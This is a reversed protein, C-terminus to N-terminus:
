SLVQLVEPLSQRSWEQVPLEPLAPRKWVSPKKEPLQWSWEQLRREQLPGKLEQLRQELEQLRGSVSRHLSPTKRCSQWHSYIRM